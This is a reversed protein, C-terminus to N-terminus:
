YPAVLNRVKNEFPGFPKDRHSVIVTEAGYCTLLNLDFITRDTSCDIYPSIKASRKIYASSILAVEPSLPLFIVREMGGKVGTDLMGLSGFIKEAEQPGWLDVFITRDSTVFPLVTRNLIFHMGHDLLDSDNIGFDSRTKKAHAKADSSDCDYNERTFQDSDTARTLKPYKPGEASTLLTLVLFSLNFLEDQDLDSFRAIKEIINPYSTALILLKQSQLDAATKITHGQKQQKLFERLSLRRWPSSLQRLNIWLYHEELSSSNDGEARDAFVSFYFDPVNYNLIV